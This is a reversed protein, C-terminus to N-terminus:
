HGSQMERRSSTHVTHHTNRTGGCGHRTAGQGQDDDEAEADSCDDDATDCKDAKYLVNYM